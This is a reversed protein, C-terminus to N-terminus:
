SITSVSSFNLLSLISSEKVNWTCEIGTETLSTHKSNTLIGILVISYNGNYVYNSPFM